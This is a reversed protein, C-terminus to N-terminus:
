SPMSTVSLLRIPAMTNPLDFVLSQLSVFACEPFAIWLATRRSLILWGLISLKTRSPAFSPLHLVIRQDAFM